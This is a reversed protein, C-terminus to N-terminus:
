PGLEDVGARGQRRVDCPQHDAIGDERPSAHRDVPAFCPQAVALEEGDDEADEGAESRDFGSRSPMPQEEAGIARPERVAPSDRGRHGSEHQQNEGGNEVVAHEGRRFPDREFAADDSEHWAQAFGHRDHDPGDPEAREPQQEEASVDRHAREHAPDNGSAPRRPLDRADEGEGQHRDRDGVMERVVQTVQQGLSLVDNRQQGVRESEAPIEEPGRAVADVDAQDARAERPVGGDSRDDHAVDKRDVEGV